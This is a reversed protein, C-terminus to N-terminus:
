SIWPPTLRVGGREAVLVLVQVLARAGPPPQGGGGLHPGGAMPLPTDVM